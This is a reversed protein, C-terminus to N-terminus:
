PKAQSAPMTTRHAHHHQHHMSLSSSICYLMSCLLSPIYIESISTGWGREHYAREELWRQWDSVDGGDEVDKCGVLAEGNVELGVCEM